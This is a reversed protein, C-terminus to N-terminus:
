PHYNNVIASDLNQALLDKYDAETEAHPLREFLYNLYSHPKLGNAKATEIISYLNASAAAGNPHASFLWNKRGVVFATPFNSM